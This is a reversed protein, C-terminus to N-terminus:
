GFFGFLCLRDVSEGEILSIPQQSPLVAPVWLLHAEALNRLLGHPRLGRRLWELEGENIMFLLFAATTIKMGSSTKIM